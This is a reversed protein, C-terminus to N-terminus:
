PRQLAKDLAAALQAKCAAYSEGPVAEYLKDLGLFVAPVYYYDFQGALAPQRSEEVWEIEAEAYATQEAALERLAQRANRCYPCGELYFLTLKSM